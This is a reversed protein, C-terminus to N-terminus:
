IADDRWFLHAATGCLWKRKAKLHYLLNSKQRKTLAAFARALTEVPSPAPKM